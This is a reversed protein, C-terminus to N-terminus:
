SRLIFNKYYASLPYVCILMSIIYCLSKNFQLCLLYFFAFCLSFQVSSNGMYNKKVM